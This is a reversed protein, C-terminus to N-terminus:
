PRGVDNIERLEETMGNGDWERLCDIMDGRKFFDV